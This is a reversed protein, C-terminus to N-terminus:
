LQPLICSTLFLSHTHKHGDKHIHLVQFLRVNKYVDTKLTLQLSCCHMFSKKFYPVIINILLRVPDEHYYLLGPDECRPKTSSPKVSLKQINKVLDHASSSNKGTLMHTGYFYCQRTYRFNLVQCTTVEQM